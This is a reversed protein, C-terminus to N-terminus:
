TVNEEALSAVVTQDPIPPFVPEGHLLEHLLPGIYKQLIWEIVPVCVADGFGFLAQNLPVDIKFSDSVGQLRACERPSLLRVYHCGKGLKVLIQRGSGGRPTRLCGALGDVRLEAMSRGHRVRRFVTGYSYHDAAIMQRAIAAHRESMQAMLYDARERSWWMEHHEPLDELVSELSATPGNPKALPRICWKIESHHCIFDVFRQPRLPSPCLDEVSINTTRPEQRTQVAVVFLRPRSQPVFSAANLTFLDCGYGLSNLRTLADALDRGNHSNLFGPVNEVLVIPPRRPGMQELIHAFKWFTGSQSGNIGVCKGALSLDNCPFSATALTVTPIDDGHLHNIDDHCLSDAVGFNQRYIEVKDDDIDNAFIVQWGTRELAVRMLGTGAFFEAATLVPFIWGQPVCQQRHPKSATQITRLVVKVCRDVNELVESEWFRLVTWGQQTLQCTAKVDRELNRGIKTIWYDSNNSRAFQEEVSDFGRSVSQHGHWFDGDVFVALRHIPLV